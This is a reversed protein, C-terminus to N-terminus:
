TAYLLVGVFENGHKMMNALIITKATDVTELQIEMAALVAEYSGSTSWKTLVFDAM